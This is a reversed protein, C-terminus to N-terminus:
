VPHQDTPDGERISPEQKGQAAVQENIRKVSIGFFSYQTLNIAMALVEHNLKHLTEVDDRSAAVIAEGAKRQMDLYLQTFPPNVQVQEPM